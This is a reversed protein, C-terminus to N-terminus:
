QDHLSEDSLSQLFAIIDNVEGRSLNLQTAPLTQHPVEDALGAGQAGGQNYFELVEELTQYGGHHFYPATLASNRVSVTKFSRQYIDADESMVGNGARGPDGDPIKLRPKEFVGLVESENEHYLPPVLGGFTPAFHCTGCAAKGMFLNFGARVRRPLATTEGRVFRDFPSKFSRLSAVYSALAASFQYRTIAAGAARPFAARFADRYEPTAQLRALMEPFTTNFELHDEIVHAAQDELDFARLDYFFRDSFVANILSPANRRVLRGEANAHSRVQGDAFARRPQHCSGCSMTGNNSLRPDYFLKRGLARLAEHDQEAKLLTYYYPNLFDASFINDSYFNWAPVEKTVEASTRAGLQRHLVLLKKYLPNVYDTLFTLRDFTDFNDHADLYAAARGFHEAIDAANGPVGVAYYRTAQQLTRCTVAAEPLAQLSGPTDFGTVGLAFMRILELRMAEFAEFRQIYRRKEFQLLLIQYRTKLESVLNAIEERHEGADNAYVQEDLVQLGRPAVVAPLDRHPYPDLHDLPPGNIHEKVYTPHYYELIYEIAKYAKRTASVQAQLSTLTGRGARYEQAAQYLRQIGTDLQKVGAQAQKLMREEPTEPHLSFRLSLFLMAMGVTALLVVRRNNRIM